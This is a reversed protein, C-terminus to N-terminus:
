CFLVLCIIFVCLILFIFKEKLFLLWNKEAFHKSSLNTLNSVNVCKKKKYGIKELSSYKCHFYLSRPDVVSALKKTTNHKKEELM